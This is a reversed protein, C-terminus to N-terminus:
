KVMLYQDCLYLYFTYELFFTENRLFFYFRSQLSLSDEHDILIM